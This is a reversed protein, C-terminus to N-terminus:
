NENKGYSEEYILCWAAQGGFVCCEPKKYKHKDADMTLVCPEQCGYCEYKQKM